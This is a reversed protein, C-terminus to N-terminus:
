EEYFLLKEGPNLGSCVTYEGNNLIINTLYKKNTKDNKITNVYYGDSDYRIVNIPITVSNEIFVIKEVKVSFGPIISNDPNDFKINCEVFTGNEITKATPLISLVTGNYTNKSLGEGKISVSDGAKVYKIDTEAIYAKVTSKDLNFYTIENSNSKQKECILGNATATLRKEEGNLLYTALIDGAKVCQGSSYNEVYEDCYQPASVTIIEDCVINGYSIVNIHGTQNGITYVTKSEEKCSCLLILIIVSLTIKKILRIVLYIRHYFSYKIM